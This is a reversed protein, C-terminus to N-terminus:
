RFPWGHFGVKSLAFKTVTERLTDVAIVVDWAAVVVQTAPPAEGVGMEYLLDGPKSM